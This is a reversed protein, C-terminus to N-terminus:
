GAPSALTKAKYFIHNGIRAIKDFRSAWYPHVYAAHYNTAGKIDSLQSLEGVMLRAALVQATRWAEPEKVKRMSGDCAFTFQCFTKGAGEFVVDCLTNGHIGQALRDFVVEAVAREGEEGEGRAEYYMVQALCRHESLLDHVAVATGDAEEIAATGRLQPIFDLPKLAIRVPMTPDVPAPKITIAAAAAVGFCVVMVLSTWALLKGATASLQELRDKTVDHEWGFGDSEL